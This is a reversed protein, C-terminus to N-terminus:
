LTAEEGPRLVIVEVPLGRKRVESVFEQPTGWLVPFTGYHMPVVYKPRLLEVALAAERPGMTFHGGIPLLAVRPEYLEGVLKMDYFVGTDGAHYVSEEGSMIVVGTPAGRVTSHYAPTLVVTLGRELKVPGGVNAGVVRDRGVREGVYEAIEYVAIARAKPAAKMVDVADGLHDGHDHTVVVYDVDSFEEPKSVYVPNSLWPDILFRAGGVVVYFAAHGLWRVKTHKM